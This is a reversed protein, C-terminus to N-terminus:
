VPREEAPPVAKKFEGMANLAKVAGNILATLAPAAGPVLETLMGLAADLKKQGDLDPFAKEVARVTAFVTHILDSFLPGLQAILTALALLTQVNM